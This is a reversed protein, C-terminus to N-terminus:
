VNGHAALELLGPVTMNEAERPPGSLPVEVAYNLKTELTEFCLKQM